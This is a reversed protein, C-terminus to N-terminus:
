SSVEEWPEIVNMERAMAEIRRPTLKLDVVFYTNLDVIYRDGLSSRIARGRPSRIARNDRALRRSLRQLVADFSVTAKRGVLKTQSM